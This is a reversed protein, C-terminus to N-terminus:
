ALKAKDFGAEALRTAFEGNTEERKARAVTGLREKVNGVQGDGLGKGNRAPLPPNIDPVRPPEGPVRPCGQHEREFTRVQKTAGGLRQHDALRPVCAHGCPYLVVRGADQLEEFMAQVRRERPKRAEYGYLNRAAEIPDWELWGADDALMWLGIYFLRTRESLGSLRADEWFAPKVQRIRM